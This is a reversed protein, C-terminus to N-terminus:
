FQNEINCIHEFTVIADTVGDFDLIDFVCVCFCAFDFFVSDWLLKGMVSTMKQSEFAIFLWYNSWLGIMRDRMDTNRIIERKYMFEIWLIGIDM